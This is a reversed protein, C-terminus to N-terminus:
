RSSLSIIVIKGEPVVAIICYSFVHSLSLSADYRWPISLSFSRTDGQRYLFYKPVKQLGWDLCFQGMTGRLRQGKRKVASGPLFGSKSKQREEGSQVQEDPGGRQATACAPCTESAWCSGKLLDEAWVTWSLFHSRHAGMSVRHGQILFPMLRAAGSVQGRNM